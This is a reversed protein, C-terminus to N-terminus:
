EFGLIIKYALNISELISSNFHEYLNEEVSLYNGQVVKELGHKKIWNSLNAESTAYRDQNSSNKAM